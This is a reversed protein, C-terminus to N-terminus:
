SQVTLVVLQDVCEYRQRAAVASHSTVVTPVAAVRLAACEEGITLRDDLLVESRLAALLTRTVASETPTDMWVAQADPAERIDVAGMVRSADVTSWAHVQSGLPTALGWVAIAGVGVGLVAGASRVPATSRAASATAHVAVVAAFGAGLAATHWLLKAPYYSDFFGGRSVLLSAVLVPSFTVAASTLAVQTPLRTVVYLAATIALVLPWGPAVVVGTAGAAGGVGVLTFAAMVPPVATAAAVSAAVAAIGLTRERRATDHWVLSWGAVAAPVAVAPILLQWTHAMLVVLALLVLFRRMPHSRPVTCERVAVALIVAALVTTQFGLALTDAMFRPTLLWCGAVAAALPTAWRSRSGLRQAVAAAASSTALVLLAYLLWTMTANLSVFASFSQRDVKDHGTLWLLSIVSHWARPYAAEAYSLEGSQVLGAVLGVHRVNDGGLFWEFSDPRAALQALGVASVWAFPAAGGWGISTSSRDALYWAAVASSVVLLGVLAPAVGPERLPARLIASLALSVATVVTLGVLVATPLVSLLEPLTAVQRGRPNSVDPTADARDHRRM